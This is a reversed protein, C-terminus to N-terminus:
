CVILNKLRIFPRTFTILGDKDYKRFGDRNHNGKTGTKNWLLCGGDTGMIGTM